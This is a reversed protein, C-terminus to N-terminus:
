FLCMQEFGRGRFGADSNLQRLGPLDMQHESKRGRISTAGADLLGDETTIKEAHVIASGHRQGLLSRFFWIRCRYGDCLDFYEGVTFLWASHAFLGDLLAAALESAFITSQATRHAESRPSFAAPLRKGCGAILFPGDQSPGGRRKM